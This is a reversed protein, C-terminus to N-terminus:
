RTPKPWHRRAIERCADDCEPFSVVLEAQERCLDPVASAHEGSCVTRLTEMTREYLAKREGEPMARVSSADRERQWLSLGAFAVLCLLVAGWTFGSIGTSKMEGVMEFSETPTMAM